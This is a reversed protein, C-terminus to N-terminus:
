PGCEGDPRRRVFLTGATAPMAAPCFLSDLETQLSPAKAAFEAPGLGWVLVADVRQGTAREFGAVDKPELSVPNGLLRYPDAEARFRVPFSPYHANWNNLMVIGRDAAARHQLHLFPNNQIYGQGPRTLIPKGVEMLPLVTWGPQLLADAEHMAELEPQLKAIAIANTALLALSVPGALVVALGREWPGFPRTALWVLVVLWPVFDLRFAISGAGAGGDPVALYLALAALALLLLGDALKFREGARLERVRRVLALATLAELTAAGLLCLALQGADEVTYLQRFGAFSRLRALVGPGFQIGTGHEAAANLNPLLYLLMLVMAPAGALGVRAAARIPLAHDLWGRWLVLVGAAVMAFVTPVPHAFAAATFLAGLAAAGGWGPAGGDALVQRLVLFFLVFGLIFNYNGTYLTLTFGGAAAFACLWGNRGGLARVCGWMSAAGGLLLLAVVWEEALAAPFLRVLPIGLYHVLSNTTSPVMEFFTGAQGDADLLLRGLIASTGIHSPGDQAPFVAFAFPLLGAVLAAAFFWADALRLRADRAAGSRGFRAQGDHDARVSAEVM